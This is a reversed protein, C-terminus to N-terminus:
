RQGGSRAAEIEARAKVVRADRDREPEIAKARDLLSECDGWKKAACAKFAEARMTEAYEHRSATVDDPQLARSV